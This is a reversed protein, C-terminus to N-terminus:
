ADVSERPKSDGIMVTGRRVSQAISRAMFDLEARAVVAYHPVTRELFQHARDPDERILGDFTKLQANTLSNSIIHGNRLELVEYIRELIARQQRDDLHGLGLEVLFSHDLKFVQPM